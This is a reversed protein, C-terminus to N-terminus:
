AGGPLLFALVEGADCGAFLRELSFAQLAARVADDAYDVGALARELAAIDPSPADDAPAAEGDAFFDGYLRASEIRGQRVAFFAELKGWAFRKTKRETFPPSSGFVWERSGYKSQRLARVAEIDAESPAAFEGAVRSMIAERVLDVTLATEAGRGFSDALNGVRSRVSPAGKSLYKEPDVRLVQGLRDLDSNVLLCGHHLYRRGKRCHAVGAVKRGSLLMDNRGSFYVPLGLDRLAHAVPRGADRFMPIAGDKALSHIFTYNLTGLDHYVAGGGTIRRAIRIGHKEAFEVNVESRANQFRGLVVTPENQWLIAIGPHGAEIGTLYYEELALNFAPDTATNILWQM